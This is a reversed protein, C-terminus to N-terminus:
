RFCLAALIFWGIAGMENEHSKTEHGLAARIVAAVFSGAGMFLALIGCAIAMV